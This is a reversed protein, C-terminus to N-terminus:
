ISIKKFNDKIKKSKEKSRNQLKIKDLKSKQDTKVNGKVQKSMKKGTKVNEKLQKSM